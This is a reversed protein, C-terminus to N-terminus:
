KIAVPHLNEGLVQYCQEAPRVLGLFNQYSLRSYVGSASARPDEPDQLIKAKLLRPRLYPGHGRPASARLPRPPRWAGRRHKDPELPTAAYGMAAPRRPQPSRRPNRSEAQGHRLLQAHSDRFKLCVGGKTFSKESKPHGFTVRPAGISVLIASQDITGSMPHLRGERQLPRARSLLRHLQCRTQVVATYSM